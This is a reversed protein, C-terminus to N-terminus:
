RVMVSHYVLYVLLDIIEGLYHQGRANGTAAARHFWQGHACCWRTPVNGLTKCPLCVCVVFLLSARKTPAQPLVCIRRLSPLEITSPSEHYRFTPSTPAYTPIWSYSSAFDPTFVVMTPIARDARTKLARSPAGTLPSPLPPSINAYGQPKRACQLCLCIFIGPESRTRHRTGQGEPYIKRCTCDQHEWM